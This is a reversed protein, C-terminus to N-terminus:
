SIYTEIAVNFIIDKNYNKKINHYLLKYEYFFDNITYDSKVESETINCFYHIIQNLMYALYYRLNSTVQVINNKIAADHILENRLRYLRVIHWVLHNEHRKLYDKRKESNGILLSKTKSLRFKILSSPSKEILENLMTEDYDWINIGLYGERDKDRMVLNNIYIFNRKMYGCLLVIPLYEKIRTFTSSDKEPVSFIYELGIWYNIFKQEMDRADNGLRFHRLSCNIRDKVDASIISSSYISSLAHDIKEYPVTDISTGDVVFDTYICRGKSNNTNTIYTSKNVEVQVIGLSLHIKDLFTSLKLKSEALSTNADLVNEEFHLFRTRETQEFFASNTQQAKATILETPISKILETNDPITETKDFILKFFVHFIEKKKELLRIKYKEFSCDFEIGDKRAFASKTIIYLFNKSYGIRILEAILCNLLRDLQIFNAQCANEKIGLTVKLFLRELYADKNIDILRFILYQIYDWSTNKEDKSELKKLEEIICDKEYEGYSICEDNKLQDLLEMCTYQVTEFRKIKGVKWDFLLHYLEHLLSNANNVKVRYSDLTDKHLLELLRNKFFDRM